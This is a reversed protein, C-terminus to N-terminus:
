NWNSVAIVPAEYCWMQRTLGISPDGEWDYKAAMVDGYARRENADTVLRATGTKVVNNIRVEVRSNALANERWDSHSTGSILILTNDVVGFWLETSRPKGSVRGITVIDCCEVEAFPTLWSM